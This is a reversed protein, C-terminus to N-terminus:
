EALRRKYIESLTPSANVKPKPTVPVVVKRVPPPPAQEEVVRRVVPVPPPPAKKVVIQSATVTVQTPAKRQVVQISEAVVKVPKKFNINFEIPAFYRNEVLVEVRATYMGEKLKDKLIPLVFQVVDDTTPTGNFMYSLDETECVLRVKVPVQEVGEVKIKFLLENSQEVDLDITELLQEM